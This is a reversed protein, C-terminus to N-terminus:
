GHSKFDGLGIRVRLSEPGPVCYNLTGAGSCDSAVLYRPVAHPPLLACSAPLMNSPLLQFLQLALDLDVENCGSIQARGNPPSFAAAPLAAADLCLEASQMMSPPKGPDVFEMSGETSENDSESTDTLM